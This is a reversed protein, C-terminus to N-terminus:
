KPKGGRRAWFLEEAEQSGAEPVEGKALNKVLEASTIRRSGARQPTTNAANATKRQEARSALIGKVIPDELAEHFPKNLLKAAKQVDEVDDTHLEAKVAALLDKPSLQDKTPETTVTVTKEKLDKEAKEARTKYNKALEEHKSAKEARENLSQFETQLVESRKEEIRKSKDEDSLDKLTEQFDADQEIRENVLSHIDMNTLAQKLTIALM